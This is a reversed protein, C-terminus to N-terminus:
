IGCVGNKEDCQARVRDISALSWVLRDTKLALTISKLRKQDKYKLLCRQNLSHTQDLCTNIPGQAPLPSPTLIHFLTSPSEWGMVFPSIYSALFPSTSRNEEEKLSKPNHALPRKSEVAHKWPVFAVFGSWFRVGEGEIGQGEWLEGARGPVADVTGVDRPHGPQESGELLSIRHRICQLHGMFARHGLSHCSNCTLTKTVEPAPWSPVIIGLVYKASTHSIFGYM